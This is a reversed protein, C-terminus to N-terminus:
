IPDGGNYLPRKTAKIKWARLLGVRKGLEITLWALAHPAKSQARQALGKPPRASRSCLFRRVCKRWMNRPRANRSCLSLVM